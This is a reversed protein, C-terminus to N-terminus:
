EELRVGINGAGVWGTGVWDLRAGQLDIRGVARIPPDLLARAKNLRDRGIEGDQRDVFDLQSENKKTALLPRARRLVISALAVADEATAMGELASPRLDASEEALKPDSKHVWANFDRLRSLKETASGM